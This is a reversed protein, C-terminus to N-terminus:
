GASPSCRGPIYGIPPPDNYQVRINRTGNNYWRLGSLKDVTTSSRKRGTHNPPIAVVGRDLRTQQRAQVSEVSLTKGRNASWAKELARQEADSMDKFKRGKKRLSLTASRQKKLAEYLRGNFKINRTHTMMVVAFVMRQRDEGTTMKTLLLHCIYHERPTLLVLNLPDNAGGLSRPLIHHAECQHPAVRTAANSIIRLYTSTYKNQLFDM